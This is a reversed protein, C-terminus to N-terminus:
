SRGPMVDVGDVQMPRDSQNRLAVHMVARHETTNIPEGSFMADRMGAVNRETALELLLDLTKETALHRSLDIVLEDVTQVFRGDRGKADCLSGLSVDDFENRHSHLLAWADSM